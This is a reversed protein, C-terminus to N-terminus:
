ELDDIYFEVQDRPNVHTIFKIRHSGSVGMDIFDYKYWGNGVPVFKVLKYEESPGDQADSRFKWTAYGDEDDYEYAEKLKKQLKETCFRGAFGDGEYYRDNFVDTFFSEIADDLAKQNEIGGRRLEVWMSDSIGGTAQQAETEVMLSDGDSMGASQGQKSKCGIIVGLVMMTIMTFMIKKM